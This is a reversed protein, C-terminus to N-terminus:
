GLEVQLRLSVAKFHYEQQLENETIAAEPLDTQGWIKVGNSATHNTYDLGEFAGMLADLKARDKDEGRHTVAIIDVDWVTIGPPAPAPSTKSRIIICSGKLLESPCGWRQINSSSIKGKVVDFLKSEDSMM